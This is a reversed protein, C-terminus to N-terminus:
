SFYLSDGTKKEYYYFLELHKEYKERSKRLTQPSIDLVEALSTSDYEKEFELNM